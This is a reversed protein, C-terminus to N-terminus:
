MNRFRANMKLFVTTYVPITYYTKCADTDATKYTCCAIGYRYICGDQQLHVGPKSVHLLCLFILSILKSFTCKTPKYGIFVKYSFLQKRSHLNYQQAFCFWDCRHALVGKWCVNLGSAAWMRVYSCGHKCSSLMSQMLTDPVNQGCNEDSESIIRYLLHGYLNVSYGHM